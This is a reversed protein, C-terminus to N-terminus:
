RRGQRGTGEEGGGSPAVVIFIVKSVIVVTTAVIVVRDTTTGVYSWKVQTSLVSAIYQQKSRGIKKM